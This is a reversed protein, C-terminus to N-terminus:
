NEGIFNNFSSSAFIWLDKVQTSITDVLIPFHQKLKEALLSTYHVLISMFHDIYPKSLDWLQSAYKIVDNLRLRIWECASNFAPGWNVHAYKVIQSTKQEVENWAIAGNKVLEDCLWSGNKAIKKLIPNMTRQAEQWGFDVKKGIQMVTNEVDQQLIPLAREISRQDLNGGTYIFLLSIGSGVTVLLAAMLFVMLSRCWGINDNTNSYEFGKKAQYDNYHHVSDGSGNRLGQGNYPEKSMSSSIKMRDQQKKLDEKARAERRREKAARKENRLKEKEQEELIRRQEEAKQEEIALRQREREMQSQMSQLLAVVKKACATCDAPTICSGAAQQLAPVLPNNKLDLWKLNKLQCFSVPLRELQNSYLDLHRLNKLQGFFEPLEELRNKSLDLKVLHTLTPFNEPLYLLHNNSLDLTTGKPLQAIETVPVESMQMLSLDLVDEDLKDRLSTKGPM